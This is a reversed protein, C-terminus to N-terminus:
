ALRISNVYGPLTKLAKDFDSQKIERTVFGVEGPVIDADVYDVEGFSAEIPGQDDTTRVFFRYKDEGPDALTLKQAKWEIPINKDLNKAIEVVDGVVASATPLKGAGSGYFM